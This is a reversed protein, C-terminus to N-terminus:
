KQWYTNAFNNHGKKEDKKYPMHVAEIQKAITCIFEVQKAIVKPSPLPLGSWYVQRAFGMSPPAQFAATWPTASPQVRSLSKAKGKCKWAKSFSIAVWELTRAQLIGPVPSGPPSGDIPDCLTPCSQLSKAAATGIVKPESLLSSSLQPQTCGKNPYRCEARRPNQLINGISFETRGSPNIEIVRLIDIPKPNNRRTM